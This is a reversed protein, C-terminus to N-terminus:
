QVEFFRDGFRSLYPKSLYLFGLKQIHLEFTDATQYMSAENKRKRHLLYIAMLEFIKSYDAYSNPTREPLIADLRAQAQRIDDEKLLTMSEAALYISLTTYAHWHEMEYLAEYHESFINKILSWQQLLILSPIIELATLHMPHLEALAPLYEEMIANVHKPASLMRYGIYRGALVPFYTALESLEIRHIPPLTGNNLYSKYGIICKLFTEEARDDPQLEELVEGYYRNLYSYDIFQYFIHTKFNKENAVSRVLRMVDTPSNRIMAIVIEAFNGGLDETFLEDRSFLFRIDQERQQTILIMTIMGLLYSMDKKDTYSSLKIVLDDLSESNVHRLALHYPIWDHFYWIHNTTENLEKSLYNDLIRWTKPSLTSEPMLGFFRRLTNFGISNKGTSNIREHLQKVARYGPQNEGITALLKTRYNLVKFRNM